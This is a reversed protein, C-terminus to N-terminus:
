AKIADFPAALSQARERDAKSHAKSALQDLTRHAWQLTTRVKALANRVRQSRSTAGAAIGRQVAADLNRTTLDIRQVQDNLNLLAIHSKYPEQAALERQRTGFAVEEAFSLNIQGTGGGMLTDRRLVEAAKVRAPDDSEAELRLRLDYRTQEKDWAVDEPIAGEFDGNIAAALAEVDALVATKVTALAPSDLDIKQLRPVPKWNDETLRDLLVLIKNENTASHSFRAM